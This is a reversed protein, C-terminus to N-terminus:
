NQWGTNIWYSYNDSISTSIPKFGYYTWITQTSVTDPPVPSPNELTQECWRQLGTEGNPNGTVVTSSPLVCWAYSDFDGTGSAGYTIQPPQANQLTGIGASVGSAGNTLTFGNITPFTASGLYNTALGHEQAIVAAGSVPVLEISNAPVSYAPSAHALAANVDATSLNAAPEDEQQAVTGTENAVVAADFSSNSTGIAGLFFSRTGSSAQPLVPVVQATTAVGQSVGTVLRPYGGSEQVDGVTSKGASQTYTGGTYIAALAGTNLNAARTASGNVQEAVGVADIAQPLFTLDNQAGAQTWTSQKPLASARAVTIEEQRMAEPATLTNTYGSNTSTWYPKATDWAASLAALGDISDDPRQFTDGGAVPTVEDDIVGNTGTVNWNDIAEALPDPIYIANNFQCGAALCHWPWWLLQAGWANIRQALSAATWITTSLSAADPTGLGTALDYDATAPYRGGNDSFFDNNGVTIDNFNGGNPYNDYLLPNLLGQRFGGDGSEIDAVLSAWLPTAASTGGNASWGGDYYIIYGSSEWDADASVDPVERCYGSTAGCPTGSSYSNIVGPASQWSPMPWVSSIGGGSAGGPLAGNNWVKETPPPGVATITTGGVSTLYPQSGPDLVALTTENGDTRSCGESGTDGSAAFVSIGEGAAQEFLTNEGQIFGPDNQQLYPECAGYSISLVNATDDDAIRTLEDTASLTYNSSPADYVIIDAQPALGIATEIDLAAEGGGPGTGDGGDVAVSSVTANTGYCTQFSQIDTSSWQDEEFLAIKTGAGLYGQAYLSTFSYASALQTYTLGDDATAATVAAACATPGGADPGFGRPRRRVPAVPRAPSRIVPVALNNLGLVATTMAAVARPLRPVSTNAFVVRGSRLRYQTFGTHLSASARRVTTLVPILLGNASALGPSLGAERLASDAARIAARTQGFRAAFQRVTWFHRYVPSGPTSVALALSRLEQPDRPSLMIDLRLAQSGPAAGLLRASAPMVPPAGLRPARPLSLSAAPLSRAPRAGAGLVAGAPAAALLVVSLAAVGAAAFRFERM